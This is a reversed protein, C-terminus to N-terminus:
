QAAAMKVAAVLWPDPAMNVAAELFPELVMKVAAELFPELIALRPELAEVTVLVEM